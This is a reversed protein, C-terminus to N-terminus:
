LRPASMRIAAWNPRGRFAVDVLPPYRMEPRAGNTLLQWSASQIEDVTRTSSSSDAPSSGSIRM